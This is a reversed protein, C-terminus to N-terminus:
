GWFNEHPDKKGCCFINSGGTGQEISLSVFDAMASLLCSFFSHVSAVRYPVQNKHLQQSLLCHLLLVLFLIRPSFAVPFDYPCDFTRYTISWPSMRCRLPFCVM